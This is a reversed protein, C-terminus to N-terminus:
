IQLQLESEMMLYISFACKVCDWLYDWVTATLLMLSHQETCKREREECRRWSFDLGAWVCICGERAIHGERKRYRPVFYVRREDCDAPRTVARVDGRESCCRRLYLVAETPVGAVEDIPVKWQGDESGTEAQLARVFACDAVLGCPQVGTANCEADETHRQGTM